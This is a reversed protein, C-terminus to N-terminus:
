NVRINKSVLEQIKTDTKFLSLQAIDELPAVAPKQPTHIHTLMFNIMLKLLAILEDGFVVPHLQGTTGGFRELNQRNTETEINEAEPDRNKGETSILNINTAEINIQSFPSFSRNNLGTTFVGAQRQQQDVQRLQIRCPRTINIEIKDKEFKGARILVERRKLTVDSDEKSQLAIEPQQPIISNVRANKENSESDQIEGQKFSSRSFISQSQQYSEFDMKLQSTRIPGIWYRPATVDAPNEMIIIVSEGVQPRVHVFEPLLPICIPLKDLPTNNDKGGKINGEDDFHVIEARIRNQSAKDEVDRVIAPYIIRNSRNGQGSIGSQGFGIGIKESLSTLDNKGM